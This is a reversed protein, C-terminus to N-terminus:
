TKSEFDLKLSFFLDINLNGFAEQNGSILNTYLV